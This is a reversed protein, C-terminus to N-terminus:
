LIKAIESINATCANLEEASAAIEQTASAQINSIDTTENVRKELNSVLNNINVLLNKISTVAESSEQSMKQIQSAVVSFSTGYEGARAAEIAANLGLLKTNRSINNIFDLIKHTNEIHKIIQETCNQVGLIKNLLDQSTSAIEQSTASLQESSSQITESIESLINQNKLNIAVTLVGIIENNKNKVPIASGKFPVGYIDKPMIGTEVNGSKLAKSILGGPPITKGELDGIKLEVGNYHCLFKERNTLSISNDLPIGAQFLPCAKALFHLLLKDENEIFYPNSFINKNNEVM